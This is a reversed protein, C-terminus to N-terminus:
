SEENWGKKMFIFRKGIATERVQKMFILLGVNRPHCPKVSNGLVLGEPFRTSESSGNGRFGKFKPLFRWGRFTPTSVLGGFIECRDFRPPKKFSGGARYITLRPRLFNEGDGRSEQFNKLIKASTVRTKVQAFRLNKEQNALCKWM